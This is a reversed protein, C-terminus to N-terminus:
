KVLQVWKKRWEPAPFSDPWYEVQRSILGNAVQHFTIARAKIVGDTVEVDTVANNGEVILSIIKFKWEGQCPYNQNIAAFNERGCIMEGSQPWFLTFDDSFFENAAKGFDNGQMTQWFGLVIDRTEM